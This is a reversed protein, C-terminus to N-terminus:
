RSCVEIWASLMGEDFAYTRFIREADLSAVSLDECPASLDFAQKSEIQSLLTGCIVNAIEGVADGAQEPTVEEENSGLLNAAVIQATSLPMRLGFAGVLPGRFNLRRGIWVTAQDDPAATEGTMSFFCMSELVEAMASPLWAEFLASSM